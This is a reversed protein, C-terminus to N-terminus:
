NTKYLQLIWKLMEFDCLLYALDIGCGLIKINKNETSKKLDCIKYVHLFTFTCLKIEKIQASLTFSQLYKPLFPVGICFNRFLKTRCM